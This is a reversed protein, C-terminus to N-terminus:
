YQHEELFAYVAVLDLGNKERDYTKLASKKGESSIETALEPKDFIRGVYYPIMYPEDVPYIFGSKGHDIFDKVGGVDSSVVPVGVMLAEGVANPSNEILSSSLFVHASKLNEVVQEATQPGMFTVYDNLEYRRILSAIYFGYARRKLFGAKIPSPGGIYLHVDPYRRILEGMNPLVLHLGKIQDFGQSFYISHKKCHSLSWRSDELYFVSRLTEGCHFYRVKPNIQSSCAKDWETRGGVNSVGQIAKIEDKGARRWRNAQGTPTSHLLSSPVAMYRVRGPLGEVAHQAIRSVLGQIHIITNDPKGFYEIAIRSHAFETGFVHLIDPKVSDIIAKLKRKLLKKHIQKLQNYKPYGSVHFGYYPIGDVVGQEEFVNSAIPFSLTLEISSEKRISELAGSLWGGAITSGDSSLPIPPVNSLWLIKTKKMQDGRYGEYPNSLWRTKGSHIISVAM